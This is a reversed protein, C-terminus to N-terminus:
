SLTLLCTIVWLLSAFHLLNYNNIDNSIIQSIVNNRDKLFYIYCCIAGAYSIFNHVRPSLM